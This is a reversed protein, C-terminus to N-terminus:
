KQTKEGHIEDAFTIKTNQILRHMMNNTYTIRERREHTTKSEINPLVMRIYVIKERKTPQTESPIPERNM